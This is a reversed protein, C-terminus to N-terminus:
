FYEYILTFGNRFIKREMGVFFCTQSSMKLNQCTSIENLTSFSQLFQQTTKSIYCKKTILYLIQMKSPKTTEAIGM